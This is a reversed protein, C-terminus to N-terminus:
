GLNVIFRITNSDRESLYVRLLCDGFRKLLLHVLLFCFLGHRTEVTINASMILAASISRISSIDHSLFGVSIQRRWVNVHTKNQCTPMTSSSIIIIMMIRDNPSPVLLEVSEEAASVPTGLPDATLPSM